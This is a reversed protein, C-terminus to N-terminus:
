TGNKIVIDKGSINSLQVCKEALEEASMKFDNQCWYELTGIMLHVRRYVFLEELNSEKTAFKTISGQRIKHIFYLYFEGLSEDKFISKYIARYRYVHLFYKKHNLVEREKTKNEDLKEQHSFMQIFGELYRMVEDDIISKMCEDKNKFYSYFSAKSYESERLIDQIKIDAYSNHELLRLLAKTFEKYAHNNKYNIELGNVEDM